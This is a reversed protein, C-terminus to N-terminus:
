ARIVSAEKISAFDNDLTVLQAGERLVHALVLSDTMGLKYAISLDVGHLAIEAPSDIDIGNLAVGPQTELTM